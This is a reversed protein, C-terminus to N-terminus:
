VIARRFDELTQFCDVKERKLIECGSKMVKSGLFCCVVQKRSKKKFEIVSKAIENVDTMFQPTVIVIISEAKSKEIAVGYEKSGATGLIDNVKIDREARSCYDAALAGAGGANTIIEMSKELKIPDGKVNKKSVKKKSARFVAELLSKCQIIGAQKFMGKYIEFDTALSGTHSVAAEFGEESKGVKVVYIPKKCKKAVELFKRGDKLKEMYLVISKTEKDNTLYELFDGFELDAMNGLSVAKSFGLGKELSLDAIYSWLAGSQSIFGIKGKKAKTLSFNANFENASNFVGFCNPGLLRIGYKKSIKFLEQEDEKNGVESFGASIVIVNKIGKRGCEKLISIVFKKPIAIICLDVRADVELLNKYCKFGGVESYKPNVPFIKGEFGELNKILAHGVSECNDSAGVIAVSKPNFFRDISKNM